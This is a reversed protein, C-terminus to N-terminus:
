VNRSLYILINGCILFEAASAVVWVSKVFNDVFKDRSKPIGVLVSLGLFATKIMMIVGVLLPITGMGVSGIGVYFMFARM